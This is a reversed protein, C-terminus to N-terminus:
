AGASATAARLGRERLPRLPGDRGPRLRALGGKMTGVWLRGQATRTCRASRTTPCAPRTTRRTASARSAGARRTSGRSAAASRASGCRARAARSCRACTTARCRTPARRTTASARFVRMAPDYRSLGGGKTGVWMAGARDRLLSWIFDAGVTTSTRSDHRLRTFGHDGAGAAPARRRHGGVARGRADEQVAWVFNHPLSAPDAPDHRLVSFAYGDFRNLGDETGFWMFGHRDQYVCNVANQSLGPVREFRIAAQQASAPTAGLALVACALLALAPQSSTACPRASRLPTTDLPKM